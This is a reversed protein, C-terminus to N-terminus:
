GRAGYTKVWRRWPVGYINVKAGYVKVAVGYVNVM